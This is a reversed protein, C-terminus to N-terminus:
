LGIHVEDVWCGMLRDEADFFLYAKVDTNSVLSRDADYYWLRIISHVELPDLGALDAVTQGGQRDMWEGDDGEAEWEARLLVDCLPRGPRREPTIDRGALRAQVNGRTEGPQAVQGLLHEADAVTM